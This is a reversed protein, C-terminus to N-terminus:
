HSYFENERCTLLSAEQPVEIQRQRQVRPQLLPTATTTTTYTYYNDVDMYPQAIHSADEDRWESKHRPRPTQGAPQCEKNKMMMMMMMM